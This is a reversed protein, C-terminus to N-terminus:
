AYSITHGKVKFTGKIVANRIANITCGIYDAAQKHSIFEKGDVYVPISRFNNGRLGDSIAKRTKPSNSSHNPSSVIRLNRTGYNCNHKQTCWELNDVHNNSKNEDLHNVVPLNNPNPIFAKAVLRHVSYHTGEIHVVLYGNSKGQNVYNETEDNRVRGYTSVSHNECGEIKRWFEM